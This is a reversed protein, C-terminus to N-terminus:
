LQEIISLHGKLAAGHLKTWAREGQRALDEADLAASVSAFALSFM